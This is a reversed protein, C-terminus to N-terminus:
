YVAKADEKDLQQNIGRHRRKIEKLRAKYHELREKDQEHLFGRQQTRELDFILRKLTTTSEKYQEEAIVRRVDRTSMLHVPPNPRWQTGFKV